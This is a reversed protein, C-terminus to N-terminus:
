ENTTEGKEEIANQGNKYQSTKADKNLKSIMSMSFIVVIVVGICSVIWVIPSQSAPNILDAYVINNFLFISILISAFLKLHNNYKM